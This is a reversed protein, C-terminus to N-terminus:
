RAFHQISHNVVASKIMYATRMGRIAEVLLVAQLKHVRKHIGTFVVTEISPAPSRDAHM